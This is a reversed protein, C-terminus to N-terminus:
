RKKRMVRRKVPRRKIVRKKKPKTRTVRKVRRGKVSIRRTRNVTPVLSKVISKLQSETIIKKVFGSRTNITRLKALSVGKKAPIAGLWKKSGKRKILIFYRVM